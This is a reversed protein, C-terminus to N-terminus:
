DIKQKEQLLKIELECVTPYFTWCPDYSDRHFGANELMEYHEETNGRAMIGYDSIYIFLGPIGIIKKLATNIAEIYDCNGKKNRSAIENIDSISQSNLIDGAVTIIKWMELWATSHEPGYKNQAKYCATNIARTTIPRSQINLILLSRIIKKYSSICVFEVDNRSELFAHYEKLKEHYDAGYHDIEYKYRLYKHDSLFSADVPDVSNIPKLRNILNNSFM